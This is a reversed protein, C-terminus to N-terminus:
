QYVGHERVLEVVRAYRALSVQPPISHDSHFVFGGPNSMGIKLKGLVEAELEREEEAFFTRVDVGGMFCLDRGYERVLQELDMGAKVELAQLCDFGTEILM